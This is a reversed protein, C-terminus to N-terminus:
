VVSKRDIGTDLSDKGKIASTSGEFMLPESALASAKEHTNSLLLGNTQIIEGSANYVHNCLADFSMGYSLTPSIFIAILLSFFTIKM